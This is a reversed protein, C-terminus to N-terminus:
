ELPNKAEETEKLHKVTDWFWVSYKEKNKEIGKVLRKLPVNFTQGVMEKQNPAIEGNFKTSFILLFENECTRDNYLHEYSFAFLQKLHPKSSIGYEHELCRYCSEEPTEGELVHTVPYDITNGGVKSDIRNHLVLENKENFVLIGVALHKVGPATHAKWREVIEGSQNGRADVVILKQYASGSLKINKM